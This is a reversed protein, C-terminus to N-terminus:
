PEEAPVPVQVASVADAHYPLATPTPYDCYGRYPLPSPPCYGLPVQCCPYARYGSGCGNITALVLCLLSAGLLKRPNHLFRTM